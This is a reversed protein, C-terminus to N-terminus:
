RATTKVMPLTTLPEFNLDSARLMQVQGASSFLVVLLGLAALQRMGADVVGTRAAVLM